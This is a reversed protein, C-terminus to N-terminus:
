HRLLNEKWWLHFPARNNTIFLTDVIQRLLHRVVQSKLLNPFTQFDWFKIYNCGLAWDRGWLLFKVSALLFFVASFYINFSERIESNWIFVLIERFYKTISQRQLLNKVELKCCVGEFKIENVIKTVRIRKM